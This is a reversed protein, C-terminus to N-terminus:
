SPPPTVEIPLGDGWGYKREAIAAVEDWLIRDVKRDLVRATADIQHERIRITVNPHHQINKVCGAAEGMEAFLYFRERCVVFWIEIERRLGTRRGITTLFLVQEDEVSQATVAAM